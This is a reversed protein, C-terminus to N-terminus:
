LQFIVQKFGSWINDNDKVRVDIKYTGPSAFIYNLINSNTVVQYQDDIKYEYQLIGGGYKKDADFSSSADIQIEYSSLVATRTITFDTVPLWNTFSYLQVSAMDEKGYKDKIKLELFHDGLSLMTYDFDLINDTVQIEGALSEGTKTNKLFGNKLIASIIYFGSEDTLRVRLKYGSVSSKITDTILKKYAHDQVWFNEVPSSIEIVPAQNLEKYFDERTDCTVLLFYFFPFLLFYITLRYISKKM